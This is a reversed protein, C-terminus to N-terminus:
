ASKPRGAPKRVPAASPKAKMAKPAPKVPAKAVPKPAPKAAVSAPKAAVSAPKAAAKPAPEAEAKSSAKVNAKPAAAKPVSPQPAVTKPTVTKPVPAKPILAKAPSTKTAANPARATPKIAETTLDFRPLVHDIYADLSQAQRWAPAQKAAHAKLAPLVALAQALAASVNDPTLDQFTVGGCWGEALRDAMWTREPAVVPVGLAAADAFIGSPMLAYAGPQYPQLILDSDLFHRFYDETPLHGIHISVEANSPVASVQRSLAEAREREAIQVFIKANPATVCARAVVEALIDGGKQRRDEGMISIRVRGDAPLGPPPPAPSPYYHHMPAPDCPLQALEQILRCLRPEVATLVVGSGVTLVRIRRAAFRFYSFDGSVTTRQADAVWGLEPRVFNFLIKPRQDPALEALWGAVGNMVTADAWPFAVLDPLEGAQAAQAWAQQCGQRVSESRLVFLTLTAIDDPQPARQEDVTMYQAILAPGINFLPKGGVRDLVEPPCEAHGFLGLAVGREACARNWALSETFVHGTEGVLEPHMVFLKRLPKTVPLGVGTWNLPRWVGIGGAAQRTFYKAKPCEDAKVTPGIGGDHKNSPEHDDPRNAKCPFSATTM